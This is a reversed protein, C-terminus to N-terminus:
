GRIQGRRRVGAHGLVSLMVLTVLRRGEGARRLGAARHRQVIARGPRCPRQQCRGPCQDMVVVEVRAFPMWLMVALAVSTAPLTLTADAARDIVMSAM